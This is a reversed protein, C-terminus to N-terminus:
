QNPFAAGPPTFNSTYRAIGKTIRLDDIYGNFYFAATLGPVDVGIGIQSAGSYNVLSSTISGLSTGNGYASITTGSRVIAFHNWSGVTPTWAATLSVSSASTGDPSIAFKINKVGSVDNLIVYFSRLNSGANWSGIIWKESNTAPLATPNIWGEITFDGSFIFNPSFRSPIYSNTGDFALSGTGFKVVSTSIQANGATELDNMMANDFIGGNTFNLLTNTGSIATAPST